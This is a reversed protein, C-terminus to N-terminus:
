LIIEAMHLLERNVRSSKEDAICTQADEEGCIDIFRVQERRVRLFGPLVMKLDSMWLTGQSWNCKVEEEAFIDKDISLYLDIDGPITEWFDALCESSQLDEEALCHLKGSFEEQLPLLEEKVPGAIWVGSLNVDNELADRIWGGCSLLGGFAPMQMDTHHDLVILIYQKEMRGSLIRSVYHYNGSDLFRIRCNQYEETQRRIELIADSDCYCNCGELQKLDLMSYQESLYFDQSEYIGSFNLLLINKM